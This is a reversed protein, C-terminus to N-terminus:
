GYWLFLVKLSKTSNTLIPKGLSRNNSQYSFAQVQGMESIVTPTRPLYLHIFLAAVVCVELIHGTRALHAELKVKKTHATGERHMNYPVLSKSSARVLTILRYLGSPVFLGIQLNYRFCRLCNLNVSLCHPAYVYLSM